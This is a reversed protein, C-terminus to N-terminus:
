DAEKYKGYYSEIPINPEDPCCEDCYPCIWGTTIRTAPKGCRVCTRESIREYKHIIDCGHETNGFDYWRLSNGCWAGKGGRRVYIIHSPITVCYVMGDYFEYQEIFDVPHKSNDVEVETLKLWNVEYIIHKSKIKKNQRPLRIYYRFSYGAKLLLECVDDCLQKSTTTLINSTHNKHGDGIYLYKLFVEILDPPLQKIFEPVKKNQALHGCNEILWRGLVTNYIRKLGKTKGHPEFGIGRILETVLNEEDYQNYAISTTTGYIKTIRTHGEAVYFGLFKLWSILNVSIGNYVYKRVCDNIKMYSERIYGPIEFTDGYPNIGKWILGKKFRKDKGFYKDPTAFEFPFMIKQNNNVHYYYSGKAVYMNHNPTVFFNVGRNEIHYMLGSYHQSIIDTPSQYILTEGDDDLTAFKDNMNVDAFYKWGAQTLVETEKDYCGFKEKIQTIRYQDTYGARDLEEKLEACLQEGFAIRWGDPMNDLETYEWDYEPVVEPDGPWYGGGSAETIRKGSFRNSPILFPYKECLKKNEEKTM